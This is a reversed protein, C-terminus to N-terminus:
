KILQGEETQICPATGNDLNDNAADVIKSIRLSEQEGLLRKGCEGCEDFTAKVKLNTPNRIPILVESEEKHVMEVNCVSCKM